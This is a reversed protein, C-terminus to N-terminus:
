IWGALASLATIVRDLSRRRGYRLCFAAKKLRQTFWPDIEQLIGWDRASHAGLEQCIETVASVQRKYLGNRMLQLRRSIGALTFRAGTDNAGHQRYWMSPRADFLWLVGLSRAIAYIAWDHYILATTLVPKTRIVHQVKRFFDRTLVFTCGQGAGEFLFDAERLDPSQSYISESGDPWQAIVSSSYGGAGSRSLEMAARALKDEMWIDDQDAFAVYDFGGAESERILRVFNQAASGTGVTRRHVHINRAASSSEAIGVTNDSSADDGVHIEVEVGRQSLISDLQQGIHDSGNHSALLILFRPQQLGPAPSPPNM